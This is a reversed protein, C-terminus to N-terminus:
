IDDLGSQAIMEDVYIYGTEVLKPVSILDEPNEYKDFQELNRKLLVPLVKSLLTVRLLARQELADRLLEEKAEQQLQAFSQERESRLQAFKDLRDGDPNLEKKMDERVLELASALSIKSNKIDREQHFKIVVREGIERNDVSIAESTVVGQLETASLVRAQFKAAISHSGGCEDLNTIQTVVFVM